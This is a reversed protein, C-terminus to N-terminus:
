FPFPFFFMGVVFVTVALLAIWDSARTRFELFHTRGKGGVYCRAEMALILEEGRQLASLILPVVLPLIAYAQKIFRVRSNQGLDAGRSLQAKVIREFEEAFTPVFRLAITMTLALEHAPFNFHRQLPSLLGETGLTLETITTSFTLLSGLILLDVFRVDSVIAAQVGCTNSDIPGWKFFSVCNQSGTLTSIYLTMQMVTLLALFPLAPKLGSLAYRVPIKSLAVLGLVVLLLIANGVYSISFTIAAVLLTFCLLKIRPDMKHVFSDLSLYQGITINRALEFEEM